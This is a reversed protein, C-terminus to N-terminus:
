MQLPTSSIPCGKRNKEKMNLFYILSPIKENTKKIQRLIHILEERNLKLFNILSPFRKVPRKIIEKCNLKVAYNLM